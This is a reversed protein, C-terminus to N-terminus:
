QAPFIPIEDGRNLLLGETSLMGPKGISRQTCPGKHEWCNLVFLENYMWDWQTGRVKENNQISIWACKSIQHGEMGAGVRLAITKQVLDRCKNTRIGLVQGKCSM